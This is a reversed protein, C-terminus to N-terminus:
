SAQQSISQEVPKRQLTSTRGDIRAVRQGMISVAAEAAALRQELSAVHKLLKDEVARLEKFASTEVASAGTLYSRLRLLLLM